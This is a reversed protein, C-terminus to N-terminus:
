PPRHSRRRRRRQLTRWGTARRPRVPASRIPLPPARAARPLATRRAVAAPLPTAVLSAVRPVPPQRPRFRLSRTLVIVSLSRPSSSQSSPGALSRPIWAEWGVAIPFEDGIRLERYGDPVDRVRELLLQRRARRHQERRARRRREHGAEEAAQGGAAGRS